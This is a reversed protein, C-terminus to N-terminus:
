LQKGHSDVKQRAAPSLRSLVENPVPCPFGRPGYVGAGDKEDPMIMYLFLDTEGDYCWIRKDNEVFAFWGQKAKWGKQSGDSTGVDLHQIIHINRDAESIRLTFPTGRFSMEGFQTM